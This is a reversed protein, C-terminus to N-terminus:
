TWTSGSAFEIQRRTLDDRVFGILSDLPLPVGSASVARFATTVYLSDPDFGSQDARAMLMDDDASTGSLWMQVWDGRTQEVATAIARTKALQM